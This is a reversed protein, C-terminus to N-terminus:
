PKPPIPAASSRTQSLVAGRSTVQWPGSGFAWASSPSSSPFKDQFLIPSTTITMTGTATGSLGYEDTAILTVTYTGASAYTHSPNAGTATGGDGFSWSFTFGAAQVAPSIDTANATFNVATGPSDSMPDSMSVTPAVDNVAVTVSSSRSNNNADTVTLTATETGPNAFEHSPTLSGAQQTGDGFSWLETYPATGGSVTGAFTM